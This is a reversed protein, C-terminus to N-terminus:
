PVGNYKLDSMEPIFGKMFDTYSDSATRNSSYSKQNGGSGQYRHGGLGGGYPYAGIDLIYESYLWDQYFPIGLVDTKTSNVYYHELKPNPDIPPIDGSLFCSV